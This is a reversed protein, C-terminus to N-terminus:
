YNEIIIGTIVDIQLHSILEQRKPLDCCAWATGVAGDMMESAFIFNKFEGNKAKILIEELKEVVDDEEAKFLKIIKSM